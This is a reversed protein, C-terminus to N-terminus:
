SHPVFAVWHSGALVVREAATLEADVLDDFLNRGTDQQYSACCALMQSTRPAVYPYAYIQGHPHSLTVGIEAGRNEFCYVQAVGPHLALEASRDVWAALVTAAEARSLDAFSADHRQSFCVVECRGGAPVATLLGGRTVREDGRLSPFRNEFVVVDYEPAPIETFSTATSPCLPCQDAAPQFTRDQRHTAIIVWEGRLWDWRAESSPVASTLRRRDPYDAPRAPVNGFYTLSRGDALTVSSKRVRAADAAM